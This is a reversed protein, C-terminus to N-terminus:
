RIEERIKRRSRGILLVYCGFIFSGFLLITPIVGIKLFVKSMMLPAWLAGRALARLTESQAIYNAYKPSHAYYFKVFKVGWANTLLYKDRFDRFVQVESSMQSGFAATAIFCSKDDLLGVVQSPTACLAEKDTTTFGSVPTFRSIIGTEDQNAMIFCYRTENQLGDIRNDTAPDLLLFYDSANSIRAVTQEDTEGSTQQEYFFVPGKYNIGSVGTAPYDAGTRLEDAYIKEDGRFPKFYCYGEASDVATDDTPCNTYTASLTTSALSRGKVKVYSTDSTTSDTTTSTKVGVTVTTSLDSAGCSSDNSAIRCIDSWPIRVEVTNGSIIPTKNLTVNTEDVQVVLLSSTITTTSSTSFNIVMDTTPGIAKLSCVNLGATCTDCTTTSSCSSSIAGSAVYYGEEDTTISSFGSVSNITITAKAVSTFLILSLVLGSFFVGIQFLLLRLPPFTRM